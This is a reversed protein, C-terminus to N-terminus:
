PAAAGDQAREADSALLASARRDLYRAIAERLQQMPAGPPEAAFRADLDGIEEALPRVREWEAIEPCDAVVVSQLAMRRLIRVMRDSLTTGVGAVLRGEADLVPRALRLSPRAYQLPIRTPM